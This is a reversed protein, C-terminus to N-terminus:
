QAFPSKVRLCDLSVRPRGRRSVPGRQPEGAPTMSMQLGPGQWKKSGLIVRNPIDLQGCTRM